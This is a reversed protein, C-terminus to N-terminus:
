YLKIGLKDNFDNDHIINIPKNLIIQAKSIINDLYCVDINEGKIIIELCDNMLTTSILLISDIKGSNNLIHELIEDINLYTRVLKQISKFLPHETNAKYILKNKQNYKILYGAAALQNLEKRIANTSESFEESLGRLYGENLETVFFKILLNLRTKSSIISDLM